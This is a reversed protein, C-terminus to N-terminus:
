SKLIHWKKVEGYFGERREPSCHGKPYLPSRASTVSRETDTRCDANNVVIVRKVINNEDLEAFHAM